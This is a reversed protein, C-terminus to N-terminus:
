QARDQRVRPLYRQLWVLAEEGLPDLREKNGKGVVRVIGMDLSLERMTLGVLESVRLGTAYLTELMARDRLGLTTDVRPADLLADVQAESLHKPLRRPLKPPTVRLTPDSPMTGNSAQMRYFRRLSSLRRHISTVKARAGFQEALFTEVDIREAGLLGRGHKKELWGSWASLDRRYSALSSAALGDELWIQDCFSDILSAAATSAM